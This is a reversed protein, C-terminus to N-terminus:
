WRRVSARRAGGRAVDVGRLEKDAFCRATGEYGHGAVVGRGVGEGAGDLGVGREGRGLGLVHEPQERLGGPGVPLLRDGLLAPELQLAAGALAHAMQQQGEAVLQDPVRLQLVGVRHLGRRGFQDHVRRVAAVAVTPGQARGQEGLGALPQAYPRVAPVGGGPMEGLDEAEGEEAFQALQPPRQGVEVQGFRLERVAHVDAGEHGALVVRGPEGQVGLGEGM